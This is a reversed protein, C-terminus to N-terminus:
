GRRRSAYPQIPVRQTANGADTTVKRNRDCVKGRYVNPATKSQLVARSPMRGVSCFLCIWHNWCPYHSCALLETEIRWKTTPRHAEPSSSIPLTSTNSGHPCSNRRPIAPGPNFFFLDPRYSYFLIDLLSHCFRVGLCLLAFCSDICVASSVVCIIPLSVPESHHTSPNLPFQKLVENKGCSTGM